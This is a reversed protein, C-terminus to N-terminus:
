LSIGGSRLRMFPLVTFNQEFLHTCLDHYIPACLGLCETKVSLGSVPILHSFQNISDKPAVRGERDSLVGASKMQFLSAISRFTQSSYLRDRLRSLGTSGALCVPTQTNLRLLILSPTSLKIHKPNLSPAIMLDNFIGAFSKGLDPMVIPAPTEFYSRKLISRLVKYYAANGGFGQTITYKTLPMRFSM